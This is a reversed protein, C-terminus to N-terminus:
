TTKSISEILKVKMETVFAQNEKYSGLVTKMMVFCLYKGCFHTVMMLGKFGESLDLKLAHTLVRHSRSKSECIHM